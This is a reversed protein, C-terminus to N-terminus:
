EHKDAVTDSATHSNHIARAVALTPHRVNTRPTEILTLVDRLPKRPNRM